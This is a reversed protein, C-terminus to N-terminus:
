CPSQWLILIRATDCPVVMILLVALKDVDMLSEPSLYRNRGTNM